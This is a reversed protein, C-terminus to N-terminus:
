SASPRSKSITILRDLLTAKYTHDDITEFGTQQALNQFSEEQLREIALQKAQIYDDIRAM